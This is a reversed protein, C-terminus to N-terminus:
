VLKKKFEDILKILENNDMIKDNMKLNYKHVINSIRIIDKHESDGGMLCICSIFPNDKILYELTDNTLEIGKDERLYPSHCNTCRHPCNTIELALSIEDPVEQFVLSQSLFKLM